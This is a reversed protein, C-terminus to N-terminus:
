LLLITPLTLHTYSVSQHSQQFVIKGIFKLNIDITIRATINTMIM